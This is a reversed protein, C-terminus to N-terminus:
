PNRITQLDLDMDLLDLALRTDASFAKKEKKVWEQLKVLEVQLNQMEEEYLENPLKGNASKKLKDTAM